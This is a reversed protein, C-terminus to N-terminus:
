LSIEQSTAPAPVENLLQAITRGILPHTVDPAIDALPKLVFWRDALGPHPIRLAADEIVQDGFLLVDIDITRPGWHRRHEISARGLKNEIAQLHKMLESPELQTQIAAAMNLYTDQDQPGMPPTEYVPSQATLHTGLLQSIAELARRLTAARDGLNSGLGLYVDAMSDNYYRKATGSLRSPRYCM